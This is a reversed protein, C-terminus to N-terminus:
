PTRVVYTGAIWDHLARKERDFGIWVLGLSFPLASLVYSATRLLSKALGPREGYVDIVTLGLAQKGPTQGRTAYFVFFYLLTVVLGLLLMAEGLASGDLMAAFLLDPSLEALHPLPQGLALCLLAGGVALIPAILVADILTALARRWFGAARFSSPTATSPRPAPLASTAVLAM